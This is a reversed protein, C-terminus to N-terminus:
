AKSSGAPISRRGMTARLHATSQTHSETQRSWSKHQFSIPPSCVHIYMHIALRVNGRARELMRVPVTSTDPNYGWLVCIGYVGDLKPTSIVARGRCGLMTM